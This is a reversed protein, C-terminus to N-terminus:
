KPRKHSMQTTGPKMNSVSTVPGFFLNHSSLEQFEMNSIRMAFYLPSNDITRRMILCSNEM